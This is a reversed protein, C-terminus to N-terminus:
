CVARFKVTCNTTLSLTATWVAPLKDMEEVDSMLYLGQLVWLLRASCCTELSRRGTRMHTQVQASLPGLLPRVKWPKQYTLGCVSCLSLWTVSKDCSGSHPRGGLLVDGSYRVWSSDLFCWLWIGLADWSGGRLTSYWHSFESGQLAWRGSQIRLRIRETVVWLEHILVPVDISWYVSLKAESSSIKPLVQILSPWATPLSQLSVNNTVQNLNRYTNIGKHFM